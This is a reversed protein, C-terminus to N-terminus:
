SVKVQPPELPAEPSETVRRALTTRHHVDLEIEAPPHKPLNPKIYIRHFEHVSWYIGFIILLVAVVVWGITGERM